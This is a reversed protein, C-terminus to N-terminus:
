REILHLVKQKDKNIEPKIDYKGTSMYKIIQRQTDSTENELDYLFWLNGEKDALKADCRGTPYTYGSIYKGYSM